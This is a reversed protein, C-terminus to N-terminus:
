FHDPLPGEPHYVQLGSYCNAFRIRKRSAVVKACKPNQERIGLNRQGMVKYPDNQLFHETEDRTRFIFINM